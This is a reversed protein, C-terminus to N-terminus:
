SQLKAMLGAADWYAWLNKIKGQENVEFVDIGEFHVERGNKGVGYGTWKVAAGNGSIFVYDETLGAKEFASTIDQFFQRIGEHGEIAPAGVPDQSVADEAFTAVVGEVNMARIAAFYDAVVKQIAEKSM